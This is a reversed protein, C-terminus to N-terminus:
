QIKNGKLNKLSVAEFGGMRVFCWVSNAVCLTISAPSPATRECGSVGSQVFLLDWCM